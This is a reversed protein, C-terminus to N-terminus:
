MNKGVYSDVRPSTPGRIHSSPWSDSTKIIELFIYIEPFFIWSLPGSAKKWSFYQWTGDVPPEHRWKRLAAPLKELLVKECKQLQRSPIGSFLFSAGSLDRGRSVEETTCLLYWSWCTSHLAPKMAPSPSPCPAPPRRPLSGVARSPQRDGLGLPCATEPPSDVSPVCDVLHFAPLLPGQPSFQSTPPCHPLSPWLSSHSQSSAFGLLFAVGGHTNTM